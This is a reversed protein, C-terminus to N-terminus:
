TEHEQPPPDTHMAAAGPRPAHGKAQRFSEMGTIERHPPLYSYSTGCFPCYLHRFPRAHRMARHGCCRKKADLQSM